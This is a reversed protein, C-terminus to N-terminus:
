LVSNLASLLKKVLYDADSVFDLGSVIQAVSAEFSHPNELHILRRLLIQSSAQLYKQLDYSKQRILEKRDAVTRNEQILQLKDQLDLIEQTNPFTSILDIDRNPIPRTTLWYDYQSMDVLPLSTTSKIDIWEM